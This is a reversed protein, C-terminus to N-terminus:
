AVDDDDDEMLIAFGDMALATSEFDKLTLNEFTKNPNTIQNIIDNCGITLQETVYNGASQLGDISTNYVYKAGDAIKKGTWTIGNWTADAGDSVVETTSDWAKSAYDKTANWVDNTAVKGANWKDSIWKGAAELEDGPSTVFDWTGKAIDCVGDWAQNATNAIWKGGASIYEGPNCVFDTVGNVVSKGGEYVSNAGSKIGNWITTGLGETSSSVYSGVASAGNKIATGASSAADSITSGVTEAASCVANFASPITDMVLGSGYSYANGIDGALSLYDTWDAKGSSIKEATKIGSAVSTATGVTNKIGSPLSGGGITLLSKGANLWDDSNAQGTAINYGANALTIGAQAAGAVSAAVGVASFATSIAGAVTASAGLATAGSGLASGVAGLVGAGIGGTCVTIAVAAVAAVAAVFIGGARSSTKQETRLKTEDRTGLSTDIQWKENITVDDTSKTINTGNSKVTSNAGLTINGTNKGSGMDINCNQVGNIYQSFFTEVNYHEEFVWTKTKSM